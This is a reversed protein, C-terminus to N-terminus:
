MVGNVARAFITMVRLRNKRAHGSHVMKHACEVYSKGHGYANKVQLQNCRKLKLKKREPLYGSTM